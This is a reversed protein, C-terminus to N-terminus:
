KKNTTLLLESIVTANNTRNLKELCLNHKIKLFIMISYEVKNHFVIM